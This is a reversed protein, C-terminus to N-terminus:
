QGGMAETVRNLTEPLQHRFKTITGGILPNAEFAPSTAAGAMALICLCLTMRIMGRGNCDARLKKFPRITM